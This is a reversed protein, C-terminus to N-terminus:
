LTPLRPQDGSRDDQEPQPDSGDVVGMLVGEIYREFDERELASVVGDVLHDGRGLFNRIYGTDRFGYQDMFRATLDNTAYRMGLLSTVGFEQFLYAIGLMALLPTEEKGWAEQFFGYGALISRQPNEAKVATIFTTPFCIGKPIFRDARWVGMIMLPREGLYATIKDHSLDTMGCFLRELMGFRNGRRSGSLRMKRYIFSLYGESFIPSNQSYRICQCDGFRYGDEKLLALYSM